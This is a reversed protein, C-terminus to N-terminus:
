SQGLGLYIAVYQGHLMLGAYRALVPGTESSCLEVRIGRANAEGVLRQRHAVVLEDESGDSFVVLVPRQPVTDDSFPDDFVNRAPAHELLPLVQSVEGAVAPRGTTRHIAEATRRAARATISTGGWLVPVADAMGIALAKAPNISLDRYPSCAVAVEDLCRAVDEIEFHPGLGITALHKLLLGVVALPDGSREPLVRTWRGAAHEAVLGREPGVLVIQSGRRVAYAVSAALQPDDGDPALVAVLDLSGVWGPLSPGPWAVVPVPCAPELIARILRAEPGLVVIARPREVAAAAQDALALEAEAEAAARRVRAGSEALPRLIQDRGALVAEDDLRSEDFWTM